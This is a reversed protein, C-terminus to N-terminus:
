QLAEPWDVEVACLGGEIAVRVPKGPAHFGSRVFGLAVAQSSAPSIAASTVRGIEEDKEAAHIAAGADPVVDSEIRLVRLERNTHGMADLRAIPEQGLYCGKVFSIARKTRAAEQALNEESLDIGYRPFGAEIRLAEFVMGGGRQVGAAALRDATADFQERAVSILFGPQLLWDVRRVAAPHEGLTAMLHAYLELSAAEEVGAAALMAAAQPGSVLLQAFEASRSTLTVDETIIYRDLHELLPTECGPGSDIWIADPAVFVFVHGLLRGKVNTVFAECGQGAQLRAVDNTCFNNLFKVRDNGGIEIQVRDALDFQACSHQAASYETRADDQGDPM